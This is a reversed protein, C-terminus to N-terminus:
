ETLREVVYYISYVSNDHPGSQTVSMTIPTGGEAAITTVTGGYPVSIDGLFQGSNKGYQYTKGGNGEPGAEDTWSVSYSWYSYSSPDNKTITAYASVRFVGSHAPTLATISIPERVNDFKGRAVIVATPLGPSSANVTKGGLTFAFAALLLAAVGLSKNMYTGGARIPCTAM